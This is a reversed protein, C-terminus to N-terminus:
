ASIATAWFCIAALLSLPTMVLREKRSKSLANMVVNLTLYGAFGYCVAIAASDRLPTDIIGGAQMLVAIAALQVVVSLACAVRMPPPMVVHRGGMAYEGFPLGFALMVYLLVAPMFVIGGIWASLM